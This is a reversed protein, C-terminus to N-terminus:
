TNRGAAASAGQGSGGSTPAQSTIQPIDPLLPVTTYIDFAERVPNLMQDLKARIADLIPGVIRGVNRVIDGIANFARGLRRVPEVVTSVSPGIKAAGEVIPPLIIAVGRLTDAILPMVREGVPALSMFAKVVDGVVPALQKVMDLGRSIWRELDGSKAAETIFSSFAEAARTAANALEPLF